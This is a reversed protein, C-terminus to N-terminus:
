LSQAFAELSGERIAARHLDRLKEEERVQRVAEALGEPVNGFRLELAFLVGDQLGLHRGRQRGEQHYQQALTM